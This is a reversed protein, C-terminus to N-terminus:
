FFDRGAETDAFFGTANFIASEGWGIFLWYREISSGDKQGFLDPLRNFNGQLPIFGAATYFISLLKTDAQAKVPDYEQRTTLMVKFLKRVFAILSRTAVEKRSNWQGTFRNGLSIAWDKKFPDYRSGDACINSSITTHEERM